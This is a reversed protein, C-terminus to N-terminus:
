AAEPEMAPARPAALSPRGVRALLAAMAVAGLALLFATGPGAHQVLSGGLASGTASGATFASTMWTFAETVTGVPASRDVLLYLCAVAPAIGLGALVMCAAFSPVAAMAVALPAVGVAVAGLRIVVRREPPRATTLAGVILGGLMSGGGWLSLFLGSLASSGLHEAVAPVSVEIMGFSVALLGIVGLLTRVGAGRLAGAWDGRRGPPRWSRSAPMAAFLCTGVLVTAAIALVAAVPSALAILAVVLLPGTIFILEQFAAELAFATQLASGRGVLSSWLARMCASIPPLTAGATASLAPLLASPGSAAVLALGSFAAACLVACALLVPTQGHRDVIRGMLPAAVGAGLSFSGAALGALGYSGDAHRVLLVLALGAMGIPLRGLVAASVLRPVQPTRLVARYRRLSM